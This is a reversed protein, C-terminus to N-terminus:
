PNPSASRAPVHGGARERRLIGSHTSTRRAPLPPLAFITSPASTAPGLAEGPLTSIRALAGRRLYAPIHLDRPLTDESLALEPTPAPAKPDHRFAGTVRAPAAPRAPLPPLAAGPSASGSRAAARSSVAPAPHTGVASDAPTSTLVPVIPGQARTSRDIVQAVTRVDHWSVRLVILADLLLGGLLALHAAPAPLLHALAAGIGGIAGGAPPGFLLRSEVLLIALAVAAGWARGSRVRLRGRVGDAIVAICWAIVGALALPMGWGLLAALPLGLVGIWTARAGPLLGVLMLTVTLAAATAVLARRQAQPLGWWWSGVQRYGSSSALSRRRIGSTREM